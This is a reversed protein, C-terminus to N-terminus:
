IWGPVTAEMLRELKGTGRRLAGLAESRLQRSSLKEMIMKVPTGTEKGRSMIATKKELLIDNIEPGHDFV